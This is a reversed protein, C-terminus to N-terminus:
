RAGKENEIRSSASIFAPMGGHYHYVSTTHFLQFGNKQYFLISASNVAQTGVLIRKCDPFLGECFRCMAGALGKKRSNESVGVLDIILTEGQKLLLLFGVISQGEEAVVMAEGRKGSFYNEVWAGKLKDALSPDIEPDRHFRDMKFCSSALDIVDSRDAVSALRVHADRPATYVSLTKSFGLNTDILHFGNSELFKSEELANPETKAYIFVKRDFIKETLRPLSYKTPTETRNFTLRFAELHLMEGLWPDSSLCPFLM